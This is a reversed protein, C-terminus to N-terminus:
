WRWGAARVGPGAEPQSRWSPVRGRPGESRGRKGRCPPWSPPVPAQACPAGASTPLAPVQGLRPAAGPPPSERPSLDDSLPAWADQWSARRSVRQLAWRRQTLAAGPCPGTRLCSPPPRTPAEKGAATFSVRPAAGSTWLFPLSRHPRRSAQPAASEAGARVRGRGALAGGAM